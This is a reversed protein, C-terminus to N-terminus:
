SKIDKNNKIQSNIYEGDLNYGNKKLSSCIEFIDHSFSPYGIEEIRYEITDFFYDVDERELFFIKVNISNIRIEEPVFRNYYLSENFTKLTREYIENILFTNETISKGTNKDKKTKKFLTTAQTKNICFSMCVEHRQIDVRFTDLCSSFTHYIKSEDPIKDIELLYNSARDKGDALEDAFRLVAALLKTRVTTESIISEQSLIGILDNKGSHAKAIDFILKRELASNKDLEQILKATDVAHNERSANIIHGADHIQIATLIIFTEYPTLENRESLGSLLYSAKEIVMAVHRESHDNLYMMPEERSMVPKIEPHIEKDLFEKFIKYHSVYDKGSPFISKDKSYFWDQLTGQEFNM